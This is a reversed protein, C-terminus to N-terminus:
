FQMTETVGDKSVIVQSNEIREVKHGSPLQAGIFYRTKDQTMIYANAGAVILTVRKKPDKMFNSTEKPASPEMNIVDLQTVQPIDNRVLHGIADLQNLDRTSTLVKINGRGIVTATANIGNVRYIDEVTELLENNVQVDLEIPTGTRRAYELLENKVDATQLVGSVQYKRGGDTLEATLGSFRPESLKQHLATYDANSNPNALLVSGAIAYVASVIGVAACLVSIGFLSRRLLPERRTRRKRKSHSRGSRSRSRQELSTVFEEPQETNEHTVEAAVPPKQHLRDVTAPEPASSILRFETDGVKFLAQEEVIYEEDQSYDKGEIIVKGSLVTVLVGDERNLLQVQWEHGQPVAGNIVIDNNIDDGVTNKSDSALQFSAGTHQGSIVILRCEDPNLPSFVVGANQRRRKRTIASDAYSIVNTM